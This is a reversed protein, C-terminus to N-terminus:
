PSALAAEVEAIFAKELKELRAHGVADPVPLLHVPNVCSANGCVHHLHQGNLPGHEAEFAVRHAREQGFRGYGKRDKNGNWLWCGNASSSKDVHSWFRALRADAADWPDEPRHALSRIGFANRWLRVTSEPIGTERATRRVNGDTALLTTRILEREQEPRGVERRTYDYPVVMLPAIGFENRWRRVTAEPVGTERATRKVNGATQSLRLRVLERLEVRSATWGSGIRSEALLTLQM